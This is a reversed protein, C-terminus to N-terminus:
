VLTSRGKQIRPVHHGDEIKISFCLSHFVFASLIYVHMSAFTCVYYAYHISKLHLYETNKKHKKKRKKKKKKKKRQSDKNRVAGHENTSLDESETLLHSVFTQVRNKWLRKFIKGFNDCCSRKNLKEKKKKTCRAFEDTNPSKRLAPIWPM